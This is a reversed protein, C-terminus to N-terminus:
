KYYETATMRNCLKSLLYPQIEPQVENVVAIRDDLTEIPLPPANHHILIDSDIFVIYDYNYSWDCECVLIKQLSVLDKEKSESIYDEIIRFDYRHLKAYNLQSDYFFKQYQEKYTEGIVITAICIKPTM